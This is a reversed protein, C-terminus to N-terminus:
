KKNIKFMSSKDQPSMPLQLVGHIVDMWSNCDDETEAAFHFHRDPTRLTFCYGPEKTGPPVGRTVSFGKEKTGLFIEGKPFADQLSRVM